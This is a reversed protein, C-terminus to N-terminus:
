GKRVEDIPQSAQMKSNHLELDGGDLGKMMDRTMNIMNLLHHGCAHVVGLQKTAAAPLEGFTGQACSCVFVNAHPHADAEISLCAQENLPAGQGQLLIPVGVCM